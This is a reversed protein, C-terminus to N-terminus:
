YKEYHNKSWKFFEITLLQWVKEDIKELEKPKITKFLGGRNYQRINQTQKELEAFDQLSLNILSVPSISYKATELVAIFIDEYGKKARIKRIDLIPDYESKLCSKWMEQWEEKSIYDRSTFYNKEVILLTHFHPHAEGSKTEDGLFEIGRFFGKIAKKFKPKKALLEFAKSMKKITARLENLSPNKITLTLFLFEYKKKKDSKLQELISYNELYTKKAKLWQCYPCFRIKCYNASDFIFKTEQTQTNLFKKFSLFNGCEYAREGKKSLGMKHYKEAINTNCSILKHKNFNELKEQFDTNEFSNKLYLNSM